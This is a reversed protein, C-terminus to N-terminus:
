LALHADTEELNGDVVLGEHVEEDEEEVVVGLDSVQRREQAHVAVHDYDLRGRGRGPYSPTTVRNCARSRTNLM